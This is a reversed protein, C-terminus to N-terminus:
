SRGMCLIQCYRKKPDLEPLENYLSDFLMYVDNLRWVFDRQIEPLVLQGANYQDILRGLTQTNISM